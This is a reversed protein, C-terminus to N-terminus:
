GGGLVLERVVVGEAPVSVDVADSVATGLRATLRLVGEHRPGCLWYRGDEDSVAGLAEVWPGVVVEAAVVAGAVGAGGGAEAVRGVVLAGGPCREALADWVRGAAAQAAGAEWAVGEGFASTVESGREQVGTVTVRERFTGAVLQRTLGLVPVRVSWDRVIWRGDSLEAFRLEGGALDAGPRRGLGTYTFAVRELRASARDVWLVGRIDPVGGRVPEFELGVLGPEGEPGELLRFCHTDLFTDSLLVTADPGYYHVLGEVERVYGAEALDEPALTRASNGGLLAEPRREESLVRLGRPDLLQNRQIVDFRLGAERETWLAAALAKRAEDWLAQTSGAGDGRLTCRRRGASVDLGELQVARSAIELDFTTGVGAGLEVPGSIASAFGIREVAVLYSGPAPARLQYRGDAATLFLAGTWAEGDMLRVMAGTIPERTAADRIVGVVTQARVEGAGASALLVWLVPPLLRKM